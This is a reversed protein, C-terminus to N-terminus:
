LDIPSQPNQNVDLNCDTQPYRQAWDDGNRLYNWGEWEMTEGLNPVKM